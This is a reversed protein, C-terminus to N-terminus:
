DVQRVGVSAMTGIKQLVPGNPDIRLQTDDRCHHLLQQPVPVVAGRVAVAAGPAGDQGGSDAAGAGDSFAFRGVVVGCVLHGFSLRSLPSVPAARDLPPRTLPM